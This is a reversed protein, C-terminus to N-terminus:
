YGYGGYGGYGGLYDGYGYGGGMYEGYGYGGGGVDNFGYNPFADYGYHGGAYDSYGYHGGPYEDYGAFGDDGCADSYDAYGDQIGGVYGRGWGTNGGDDYGEVARSFAGDIFGNRGHHMYGDECEGGSIVERVGFEYGARRADEYTPTPPGTRPGWGPLTELGESVVEQTGDGHRIIAIYHEPNGPIIPAHTHHTRRNTR